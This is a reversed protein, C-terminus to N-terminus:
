VRARCAGLSTARKPSRPMAMGHRHGIGARAAPGSARATGRMPSSGGLGALRRLSHADAMRTLAADVREFGRMKAECSGGADQRALSRGLQAQPPAPEIRLGFPNPDAPPAAHPPGHRAPAGRGVVRAELVSGSARRWRLASPQSLLSTTM